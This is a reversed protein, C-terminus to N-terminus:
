STDRTIDTLVNLTGSVLTTVVAPSGTPDVLQLDYHYKGPTIDTDNSTLTLTGIGSTSPSGSPFTTQVQLAASADLDSKSSKLTMFLIMNSVDKAVNNEKFTLNYVKTDGRYFDGISM